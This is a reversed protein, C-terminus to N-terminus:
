IGQSHETTQKTKKAPHALIFSNIIHQFNGQLQNNELYCKEMLQSHQQSPKQTHVM